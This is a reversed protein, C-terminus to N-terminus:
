IKTLIKIKLSGLIDILSKGLDLSIWNVGFIDFFTM